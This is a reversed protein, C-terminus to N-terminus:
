ENLSTSILVNTKDGGIIMEVTLKQNNEGISPEDVIEGWLSVETGVQSEFSPPALVDALHFRVIGLAFALVFISVVVCWKNKSVFSFFLILAVGILGLLASFYFNGFVFSRLLVGFILGFCISFFIKDRM